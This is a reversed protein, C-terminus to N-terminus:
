SPLQGFGAWDVLVWDKWPGQGRFNPHGRFMTNGRQHKTFIGLGDSPLHESLLEQSNHLFDLLDNHMATQDSFESRSKLEFGVQDAEEDWFM